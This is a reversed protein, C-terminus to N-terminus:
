TYTLTRKHGIFFNPVAVLFTNVADYLSAEIIIILITTLNKMLIIHEPISLIGNHINKEIGTTPVIKPM